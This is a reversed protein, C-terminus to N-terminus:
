ERLHPGRDERGGSPGQSWIKGPCTGCTAKSRKLQRRSGTSQLGWRVLILKEGTPQLTETRKGSRDRKGAEKKGACRSSRKSPFVKIGWSGVACYPHKGVLVSYIYLHLVVCAPYCFQHYKSANWSIGGQHKVLNRRKHRSPGRISPLDRVDFLVSLKRM